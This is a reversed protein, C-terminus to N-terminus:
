LIAKMLVVLRRDDLVGLLDNIVDRDSIGSDPIIYSALLDQCKSLAILLEGAESCDKFREM